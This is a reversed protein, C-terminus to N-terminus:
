GFDIRYCSEFQKVIIHTVLFLGPEVAGSFVNMYRVSCDRFPHHFDLPALDRNNVRATWSLGVGLTTTCILKICSLTIQQRVFKAESSM